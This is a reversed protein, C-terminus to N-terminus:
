WGSRGAAVQRHCIHDLPGSRASGTDSSPQTNRAALARADLWAEPHGVRGALEILDLHVRRRIGLEGAAGLDDPRREVVRDAIVRDLDGKRLDIAGRQDDGLAGRNAIRQVPPAPPKRFDSM